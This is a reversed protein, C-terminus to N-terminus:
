FFFLFSFLIFTRGIINKTQESLSNIIRCLGHNKFLISPCIEFDSAIGEKVGRTGDGALRQMHKYPM